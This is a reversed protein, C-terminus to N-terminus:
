GGPRLAREVAAAPAEALGAERALRLAVLGLACYIARDEPDLAALHTRLTAEDGRRVPGTLADAPGAALNAVTGQMLPLYLQAAEEAPIGARRALRRAVDALVVTYNSAIVAGAHYAPKAEPALRVPRMGLAAALREGAELARPDGELGAFSGRLREPATEPDAIAQLPHFSGLAAGTPALAQLALRDLLGSLHLVVQTDGIVGQRALEAAVGGIADDPTAILVLSARRTADPGRQRGLLTVEFGALRLGLALGQGM